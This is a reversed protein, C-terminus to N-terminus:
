KRRRWLEIFALSLLLGGFMGLEAVVFWRPLGAITVAQAQIEWLYAASM